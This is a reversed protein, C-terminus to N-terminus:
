GPWADPDDPKKRAVTRIGAKPLAQKLISPKGHQPDDPWWDVDAEYEDDIKKSGGVSLKPADSLSLLKSTKRDAKKSDDEANIKLSDFSATTSSIGARIPRSPVTTTPTVPRPSGVGPTVSPATSSSAPWDFDSISM